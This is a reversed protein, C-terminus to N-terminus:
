IKKLFYDFFLRGADFSPGSEIIAELDHGHKALLVRDKKFITNGIEREVEPHFQVGLVRDQPLVFAQTETHNNSALLIAGPPLPHVEDFHHQWVKEAPRVDLERLAHETFHITGWGAEFGNPSARIFDAGFLTKALLQSGYCIGMQPINQAHAARIFTSINDTFPADETISLESGSHIVHTVQRELLDVPVSEQTDIFLSTVEAGRPLHPVITPIAIRSTSYDLVLIHM